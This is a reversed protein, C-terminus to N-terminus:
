KFIMRLYKLLKEGKRKEDTAYKLGDPSTNISSLIIKLSEFKQKRRHMLSTIFFVIPPM